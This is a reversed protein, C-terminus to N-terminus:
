ELRLRCVLNERSQLESTHEASRRVHGPGDDGGNGVAHRDRRGFAPSEIFEDAQDFSRQRIRGLQVPTGHGVGGSVYEVPEVFVSRCLTTYPCLCAPCCRRRLGVT